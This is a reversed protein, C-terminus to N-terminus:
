RTREVLVIAAAVAAAVGLDSTDLLVADDAQKLPAIGRGSDREDRAQIDGLVHAYTVALGMRVLEDFRRQARVAPTATVFLKAQAEPAIVTGIDRGDLVAGGPQRAFDRQRELLAARVSPHASVISAARGAAESKLVSDDLLGDDFACAQFADGEDAPDGGSRLVAMGVARYLLGTDLHPLGYHRALAKAITGKGSAAPGDVAIIM